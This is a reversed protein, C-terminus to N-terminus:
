RDVYTVTKRLKKKKKYYRIVESRDLLDKKRGRNITVKTKTRRKAGNSNM